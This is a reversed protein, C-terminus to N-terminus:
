QFIEFSILTILYPQQPYEQESVSNLSLLFMRVSVSILIRSFPKSKAKTCFFFHNIFGFESTVKLFKASPYSSFPMKLIFRGGVKAIYRINPRFRLPTWRLM